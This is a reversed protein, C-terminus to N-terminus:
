TGTEAGDLPSVVQRAIKSLEALDDWYVPLSTVAKGFMEDPGVKGEIGGLRRYFARARLNTDVVTLWLSQAGLSCLADATNAFLLQSLGSGRATELVHFNDLYPAEGLRVAGFGLLTGVADFAGWLLDDGTLGTSWRRAIDRAMPEGLYEAPLVGAYTGRWSQLQVNAVAALDRENLQRFSTEILLRQTRAM